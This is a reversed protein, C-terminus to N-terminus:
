FTQLEVLRKYNGSSKLLEEHTGEEIIKGEDIVVIKDVHQITSLRHAIIISTREKMLNYLADQVLKESESDLASTAEDLILIPPNKYIARAITLRQKQGGSLKEGRNGINTQYAKPLEMIFDHANAIKAARMVKEENIYSEGFAINSAVTDNFLISQQTVIGMKSRLSSIRYTKIDKGDIKISGSKPDYFRPLLDVLTSKGGGSSGVLAVSKGKEITLSINNLVDVHDYAFSVNEYVINKEFQKMTIANPDNEIVNDENLISEIREVSANGRQINYYATSFSKAPNIIQSFIAIFVLFTEGDLTSNNGIILNGGFWLVIVVVAMGLFESLPSSLDRKRSISNSIKFNEHNERLFKQNQHIDASFAKIIRLGNLSEDIISLIVGLQEQGRFSIKKLTKGVRGIILGTIPLILLIFLTLRPSIMLMTTLYIIITIPEKIITEIMSMISVDVEQVDTTMRSILDGRTKNSHFSLPLEMAKKFLKFRIDKITGNRVPTLFFVALYRFLNKFLFIFIIAVCILLLAKIKGAEITEASVIINNFFYNFHGEIFTKLANLSFKHLAEPPTVEVIDQRFILRLFPIFIIFSFVSFIISLINCIINVGLYKRYPKTYHLIKFFSNM